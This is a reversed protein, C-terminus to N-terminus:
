HLIEVDNGPNLITGFDLWLDTARSDVLWGSAIEGGIYGDERLVSADFQLSQHNGLSLNHTVKASYLKRIDKETMAVNPAWVVHKMKGDWFLTPSSRRAGLSLINTIGGSNPPGTPSTSDVLTGDAYMRLTNTGVDYVCAIHHWSGDLYGSTIVFVNGSVVSGDGIRCVLNGTGTVVQFPDTFDNGSGLWAPVQSAASWDDSNLWAAWTFSGGNMNMDADTISLRQTSGDLEAATAGGFLDLGTFTVAGTNSLTKSNGSGDTLDALNWYYLRDTLSAFPFSESTLVHGAAIQANNTFRRSYIANVEAETLADGNVFFVDQALAIQGNAFGVFGNVTFQASAMTNFASGLSGTGVGRADIYCVFNGSGTHVMVVHHWSNKEFPVADVLCMSVDTGPTAETAARFTINTTTFSIDAGRDGTSVNNGILTGASNSWDAVKFWGGFSFAVNGPNFHSDTSNLQGAVTGPMNAISRGFFGPGDFTVDGGNTLNGGVSSSDETADVLHYYAANAPTPFDSDSLAQQANAVAGVTGITQTTVIKRSQQQQPGIIDLDSQAIVVGTVAAITALIPLYWRKM